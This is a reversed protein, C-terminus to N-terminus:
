GVALDLVAFYQQLLMHNYHESFEKKDNFNSPSLTSFHITFARKIKEKILASINGSDIRSTVAQHVVATDAVCPAQDGSVAELHDRNEPGHDKDQHEVGHDQDHGQYHGQCTKIWVRAVTAM